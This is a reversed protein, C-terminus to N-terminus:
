VFARQVSRASSRVSGNEVAAINSAEITGLISTLPRFNKDIIPM